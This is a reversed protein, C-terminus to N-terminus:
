CARAHGVDRTTARTRERGYSCIAGYAGLANTQYCVLHVKSICATHTSLADAATYWSHGHKVCRYMLLKDEYGIQIPGTQPLGQVIQAARDFQADVQPRTTM